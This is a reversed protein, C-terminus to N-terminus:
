KNFKQLADFVSQEEDILRKAHGTDALTKAESLYKQCLAQSQAQKRKQDRTRVRWKLHRRSQKEV